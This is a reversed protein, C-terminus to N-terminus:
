WGLYTCTSTQNRAVYGVSAASHTIVTTTIVTGNPQEGPPLVALGPRTTVCSVKYEGVVRYLPGPIAKIALGSWDFPFYAIVGIALMAVM